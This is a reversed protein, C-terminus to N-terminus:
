NGTQGLRRGVGFVLRGHARHYTFYIIVLAGALLFWTLAYQLHDNPMDVRTQGGRPWPAGARSTKAELIAPAALKLHEAQAIGSLDRAFWVRHEMDPHPTFPGPKDPTRWIGVMDVTGQLESGPRSAPDRLTTPILGRDILMTRGDVLKFPTLIHYVPEGKPGTTFAYVERANEFRGTLAVPRYQAQEGLALAADLSIPAAAMNRTIEAILRLKWHLRELQWIGLGVLLAFMPLCLLTFGFLPRFHLRM